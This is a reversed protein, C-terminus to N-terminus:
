LLLGSPADKRNANSIRTLLIPFAFKSEPEVQNLDHLKVRYGSKLLAKRSALSIHM